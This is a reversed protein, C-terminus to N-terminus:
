LHGAPPLAQALRARVLELWERNTRGEGAPDYGIRWADLQAALEDDTRTLLEAAGEYAERVTTENEDAAFRDVVAEATPGEIDWDLHFYAAVLYQLSDLSM